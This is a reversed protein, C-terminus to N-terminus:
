YFPGTTNPNFQNLGGAARSKRFLFRGRVSGGVSVRSLISSRPLSSPRAPTWIRGDQWVLTIAAMSNSPMRMSRPSGGQLEHYTLDDPNGLPM